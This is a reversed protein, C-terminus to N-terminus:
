KPINRVCEQVKDLHGGVNQPQNNLNLYPKLLQLLCEAAKCIAGGKNLGDMCKLLHQYVSLIVPQINEEEGSSLTDRFYEYDQGVNLPCAVDRDLILDVRRRFNYYSLLKSVTGVYLDFIISIEERNLDILGINTCLDFFM